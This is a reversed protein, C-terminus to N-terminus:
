ARIQIRVLNESSPRKFNTDLKKHSSDRRNNTNAWKSLNERLNANPSGHDTISDDSLIDSSPSTLLNNSVHNEDATRTPSTETIKDGSCSKESVNEHRDTLHDNRNTADSIDKLPNADEALDSVSAKLQECNVKSDKNVYQISDVDPVANRNAGKTSFDEIKNNELNFADRKEDDRKSFYKSEVVINEDIVTRRIRMLNRGRIRCNGNSLMSPSTMLDSVRKVFPNKQRLLEPSMENEADLSSQESKREPSAIPKADQCSYLDLVASDDLNQRESLKDNQATPSNHLKSSVFMDKLSNRRVTQERKDNIPSNMASESSLVKYSKTRLEYKNSWISARIMATQESEM